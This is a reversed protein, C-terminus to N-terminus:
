LLGRRRSSPEEPSRGRTPLTLLAIVGGLGCLFLIFVFLPDFSGYEAHLVGSVLGGALAGVGYATYMIGYNKAQNQSGFLRNTAAPAVALWGGLMLWFLGFGLYFPWEVGPEVLMSIAAGVAIIAFSIVATLRVGLADHLAGFIPRGVGNLVGFASVAVAASAASVGAAERGFSATMGIATLGALTGIGFCVWFGYFSVTRLMERPRLEGLIGASADREAPAPIAGPEATQRREDYRRLLPALLWIIAVFFIGLTIMAREVGFRGILYEALPATLFPSVGFGALTVGMALGRRAPFWSAAVVLPVGYAFGVGAGGIVGYTVITAGLSSSLGAGIWGAGLLAGGVALTARTGFRSIVNGALPMTFAFVGLFVSYPIGSEAAGISLLAELPSRFISWSYVTGLCTNVLVGVAVLDWRKNLRDRDVTKM